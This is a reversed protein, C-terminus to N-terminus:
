KQTQLIQYEQQLQQLREKEKADLRYRFSLLTIEKAMKMGDSLVDIKEDDVHRWRIPMSRIPVNLHAAKYLLEIDHAWGKIQLEKFLLKAIAAPYLKFGCQTDAVSIPTLLKVWKNFLNGAWKRHEKVQINSEPHQRSAILIEQDSFRGDKRKNLWRQLELPHTAMDADLTLIFDGKAVLVGARLAGGKGQNKDLTILQIDSLRAQIQQSTDDSSGDDVVIIEATTTWQKQFERIGKELHHIRKSENYCPIVLSIFIHNSARLNHPM